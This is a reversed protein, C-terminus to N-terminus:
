LSCVDHSALDSSKASGDGPLERIPEDAELMGQKQAYRKRECSGCCGNGRVVTVTALIHWGPDNIKLAHDLPGRNGVRMRFYGDPNGRAHNHRVFQWLQISQCNGVCVPLDAGDRGASIDHLDTGARMKHEQKRLVDLDAVADPKQREPVTQRRMFDAAAPYTNSGALHQSGVAVPLSFYLAAFLM